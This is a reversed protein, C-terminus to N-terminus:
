GRAFMAELEERRPVGVIRNKGFIITPTTKVRRLLAKMKGKFSTVDIIQVNLCKEKALKKVLQLATEDEESFIKGTETNALEKVTCYHVTGGAALPRGEVSPRTVVERNMIFVEVTRPV